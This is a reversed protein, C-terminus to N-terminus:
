NDTTIITKSSSSTNSNEITTITNNASNSLYEEGKDSFYGIVTVMTATKLDSISVETGLHKSWSPMGPINYVSGLVFNSTTYYIGRQLSEEPTFSPHFFDIDIYSSIALPITSLDLDVGTPTSDVADKGTFLGIFANSLIQLGLESRAKWKMSDSIEQALQHTESAILLGGNGCELVSKNYLIPTEGKIIVTEQFSRWKGNKQPEACDHRFVAITTGIATVAVAGFFVWGVPGSLVITLGVAIGGVLALLGGVQKAPLKCKFCEKTNKDNITLLRKGSSYRVQFDEIDLHRKLQQPRGALDFTCSVWAGEEIYANM